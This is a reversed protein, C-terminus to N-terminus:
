ASRRAVEDQEAAPKAEFEIEEFEPELKESSSKIAARARTARGPAVFDSEPSAYSINRGM